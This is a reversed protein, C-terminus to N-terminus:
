PAPMEENRKKITIVGEEKLREFEENPDIPDGEAAVDNKSKLFLLREATSRNDTPTESDIVDRINSDANSAGVRGLFGTTSATETKVVGSNDVDKVGFITQRAQDQTSIEMPRSVGPRPPRLTYDPPVSLPARTVISFEDPAVNILGLDQKAEDSCASLGLVACSILLLRRM